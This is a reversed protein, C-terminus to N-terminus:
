LLDSKGPPNVNSTYFKFFKIGTSVMVETLFNLIDGADQKGRDVIGDMM